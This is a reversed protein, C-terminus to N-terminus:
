ACMMKKLDIGKKNIIVCLYKFKLIQKTTVNEETNIHFREDIQNSYITKNLGM